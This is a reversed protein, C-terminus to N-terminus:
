AKVSLLYNTGLPYTSVCTPNFTFVPAESDTKPAGVALKPNPSKRTFFTASGTSGYSAAVRAQVSALIPSGFIIENRIRQPSTGKELPVAPFTFVNVTFLVLKGYLSIPITYDAWHTLCLPLFSVMRKRITKFEARVPPRANLTCQWFSVCNSFV